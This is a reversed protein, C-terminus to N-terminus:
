VFARKIELYRIWICALGTRGVGQNRRLRQKQEEGLVSRGGPHCVLGDEKVRKAPNGDDTKEKRL